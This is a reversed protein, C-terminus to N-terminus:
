EHNNRNPPKKTKKPKLAKGTLHIKLEPHKPDNSHITVFDNIKGAKEPKFFLTLEIRKGKKIAKESLRVGAENPSDNEMLYLDGDGKNEVIVKFLATEGVKFTGLHVTDPTVSIVPDPLNIKLKAPDLTEIDAALTLVYKQGSDDEVVVTSEHHGSQGAPNFEAKIGGAEGPQYETKEPKAAACGCSPTVSVIRAMKDSANRFPFDHSLKEIGRIAGFSFQLHDFVLAGAHAPRGSLLSAALLCLMAM